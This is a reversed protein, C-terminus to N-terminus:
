WSRIIILIKFFSFHKFRLKFDPTRYVIVWCYNWFDIRYSYALPIITNKKAPSFSHFSLFFIGPSRRGKLKLKQPKFSNFKEKIEINIIQQFHNDINKLLFNLMQNIEVWLYTGSHKIKLWLSLPFNLICVIACYYFLYM